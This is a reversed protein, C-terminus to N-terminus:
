SPCVLEKLEEASLGRWGTAAGIPPQWTRSAQAEEFQEMSHWHSPDTDDLRRAVTSRYEPDHGHRLHFLHAAIEDQEKRPLAALQEKIEQLSVL